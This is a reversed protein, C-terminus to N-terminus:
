LIDKYLLIFSIISSFIISFINVLDNDIAYYGQKLLSNNECHIKSETFKGCQQCIFQGQVTAGLLSDIFCGGLGSLSLVVIQYLTFPHFIHGIVVIMISGLLASATGIYSIGGSTGPMVSKFNTILRPKAKSFIGLETAWTDATATALAAIYIIYMSENESFYAILVILTAVGGNALAQYFDRVGSKQYSSEFQKKKNKGIKSIFSSLIFFGLIPFTYTLGGFGFIISGMIFALMSGGANLFHIKYSLISVFAALLTGIILNVLIGSEASGLVAYLFLGSIPSLVSIRPVSLARSGLTIQCSGV